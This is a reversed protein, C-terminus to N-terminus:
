AATIAVSCRMVADLRGVERAARGHQGDSEDKAGAGVAPLHEKEARPTITAMRVTPRTTTAFRPPLRSALRPPPELASPRTSEPSRVPLPAMALPGLRRTLFYRIVTGGVPHRAADDAQREVADGRLRRVIRVALVRGICEIQIAM